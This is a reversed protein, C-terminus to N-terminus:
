RGVKLDILVVDSNEQLRDFLIRKGDRTVDFGRIARGPKLDTLQRRAGTELNVLWFQPTRWAGQQVVLSQGDPLFRYAASIARVGTRTIQIDPLPLPSGQPTVAKVRM